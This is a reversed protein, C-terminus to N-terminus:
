EPAEGRRDESRSSRGGPKTTTRRFRCAHRLHLEIFRVVLAAYYSRPRWLMPRCWPGSPDCEDDYSSLPKAADLQSWDYVPQETHIGAVRVLDLLFHVRCHRVGRHPISGIYALNQWMDPRLLHRALTLGTSAWIHPLPAIEHDATVHLHM